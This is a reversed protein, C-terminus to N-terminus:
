ELYRTCLHSYDKGSVNDTLVMKFNFLHLTVVEYTLSSWTKITLIVNIVLVIIWSSLNIIVKTLEPSEWITMLSLVLFLMKSTILTFDSAITVLITLCFIHNAKKAMCLLEYHIVLVDRIEEMAEKARISKSLIIKTYDIVIRKLLRKNIIMFQIRIASLLKYNFFTEFVGIFFCLAFSSYYFMSFSYTENSLYYILFDILFITFVEIFLLLFSRNMNKHNKLHLEECKKSIRLLLYRAEQRTKINWTIRVIMNCISAAIQILDSLKSSYKKNFIIHLSQYVSIVYYTFTPIFWVFDLYKLLNNQNKELSYYIIGLFKCIWFLPKIHQLLTRKM